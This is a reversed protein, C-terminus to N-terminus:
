QVREKLIIVRIIVEKVRAGEGLLRLLEQEKEKRIYEGM